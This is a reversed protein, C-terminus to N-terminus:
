EDAAAEGRDPGDSPGACSRYDVVSVRGGTKTRAWRGFSPMQRLEEGTFVPGDRCV